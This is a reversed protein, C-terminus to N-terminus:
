RNHNHHEKLNIKIISVVGLMGIMFGVLTLSYAVVNLWIYVPLVELVMGFTVLWGFILMAGGLLMQNKPYRM